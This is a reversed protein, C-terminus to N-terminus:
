GYFKLLYMEVAFQVDLYNKVKETGYYQSLYEMEEVCRADIGYLIAKRLPHGDKDVPLCDAGLTSGGVCAIKEPEVGSQQLLIKSLICFDNWWVKDADQEYYGPEPNEMGHHTVARSVM